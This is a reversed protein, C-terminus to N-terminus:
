QSEGVANLEPNSLAADKASKWAEILPVMTGSQTELRMGTLRSFEVGGRQLEDDNIASTKVLLAREYGSLLRELGPQSVRGSEADLMQRWHRSWGPTLFFTGATKRQEQYYREGGGLCLAVCDDAPHDGDMPQFLPVNAIGAAQIDALAGGCRGYGLLLVDVRPQLAQIAGTLARSLVRRTRHLGLALVRVLVELPMDPEPIFAHPHPLRQLHSTRRSELLKILQASHEDELISIRRVDHDETLLQAFELELIECTIIGLVAM